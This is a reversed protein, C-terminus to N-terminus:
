FSELCCLALENYIKLFMVNFVVNRHSSSRFVDGAIGLGLMASVLILNSYKGTM